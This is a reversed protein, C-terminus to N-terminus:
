RGDRDRSRGGDRSRADAGAAGAPGSIKDGTEPSNAVKARVGKESAVGGSVVKAETAPSANRVAAIRGMEMRMGTKLNFAPPVIIDVKEKSGAREVQIVMELGRLVYQRRYFEGFDLQMTPDSASPAPPIPTPTPDKISSTAGVIRDGALFPTKAKSAASGADYPKIVKRNSQVLVLRKAPAVGITPFLATEDRSPEIEIVLQEGQPNLISFKIKEGEDSGMVIPRVDDFMPKKISDIQQMITGSSMGSQWAPSGSEVWGIMPAREEVGNSYAAMFCIVALIMNMIVGASIIMMRQSVSKNKFSRPDEEAEESDANEGEGIMKVFGGLPIWGIKYTTEGYKFQCGPLPQGFGIAFMEVHVDCWKAALFHGLEHIFIVLGLGMAVKMIDWINLGKWLILAVLGGVALLPGINSSLWRGFTPPPADPDTAFTPANVPPISNASNSNVPTEM